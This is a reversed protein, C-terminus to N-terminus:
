KGKPYSKLFYTTFEKDKRTTSLDVLDSKVESVTRGSNNLCRLPILYYPMYPETADLLISKDGIKALVIVYNLKSLSPSIPSLIGNDRTSM